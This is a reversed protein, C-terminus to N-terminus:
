KEKVSDPIEAVNVEKCKETVNIVTDCGYCKAFLECESDDAPIRIYKEFGGGIAGFRSRGDPLRFCNRHEDYFKDIVYFEELTMEIDKHAEYDEKWEQTDPVDKKTYKDYKANLCLGKDNNEAM